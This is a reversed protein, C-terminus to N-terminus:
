WTGLGALADELDPLNLVVALNGPAPGVDVTLCGTM